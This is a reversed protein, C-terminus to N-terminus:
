ILGQESDIGDRSQERIFKNLMWCLAQGNADGAASKNPRVRRELRGEACNPTLSRDPDKLQRRQTSAIYRIRGPYAANIGLTKDGFHLFRVRDGECYLREGQVQQQPEELAITGQGSPLKIEIRFPAKAKALLVAGVPEASATM